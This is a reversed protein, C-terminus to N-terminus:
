NLDSYRKITATQGAQPAQSRAPATFHRVVVEDGTDSPNAGTDASTSNAIQRKAAPPKPLAQQASSNIPAKPQVVAAAPIVTAGAARAPTQASKHVVLKVPGFPVQQQIQASGAPLFSSPSVPPFQARSSRSGGWATWLLMIGVTVAGAAAAAWTWAPHYPSNWEGDWRPQQAQDTRAYVSIEENVAPAGEAESIPVDTVGVGSEIQELPSQEEQQQVAPQDQALGPNESGLLLVKEEKERRRREAEEAWAKRAEEALREREARERAVREREQALRLAEQRQRELQAQRERQRLELEEAERTRRLLEQALRQREKEEDALRNRISERRRDETEQLLQRAHELEARRVQELKAQRRREAAIAQRKREIRWKEEWLLWRAGLKERAQGALVLIGARSRQVIAATGARLQRVGNDLARMIAQFRVQIALRASPAPRTEATFSPTLLPTESTGDEAKSISSFPLRDPEYVVDPNAQSAAALLQESLSVGEPQAQPLEICGPAVLVDVQKGRSLRAAQALAEQADLMDLEIELEAATECTEGPRVIEVTYGHAELRRSLQRADESANTIIRALPM